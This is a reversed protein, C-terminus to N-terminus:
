RRRLAGLSSLALRVLGAQSRAECKAMAHKLHTRITEGSVCFRDALEVVGLGESLGAVVRAEARSFGFQRALLLRDMPRSSGPENAFVLVLPEGALAGADAAALFLTLGRTGDASRLSLTAPEPSVGLAPPLLVSRLRKGLSTNAVPDVAELKGGRIRLCSGMRVHQEADPSLRRVVGGADVVFVAARLADLAGVLARADAATRRLANTIDWARVLHPAIGDLLAVDDLSFPGYRLARHLSLVSFAEPRKALVIGSIHGVGNARYFDTQIETPELESFAIDRDDLYVHGATATPITRRVRIDRYRFYKNFNATATDSYGLSANLGIPQEGNEMSRDYLVAAACGFRAAMANLLKPWKSADLAADYVLHLLAESTM